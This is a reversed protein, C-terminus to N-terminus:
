LVMSPSFESLMRKAIREDSAASGTSQTEKKRGDMHEVTLIEKTVNYRGKVGNSISIPVWQDNQNSM